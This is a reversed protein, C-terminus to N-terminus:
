IQTIHTSIDLITPLPIWDINLPIDLENLTAATSPTATCDPAAPVAKRAVPTSAAPIPMAATTAFGAIIKDSKTDARPITIATKKKNKNVTRFYKSAFAIIAIGIPILFLVWPDTFSIKM